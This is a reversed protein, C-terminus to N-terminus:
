FDERVKFKLRDFITLITGDSFTIFIEGEYTGAAVNLTDTNWLMYCVGSTYPAVKVCELEDLVDKSGLARFKVAVTAGTLDIPAWTTPDDPDLNKGAAATNSDRLTLTIEPKTDKAVLSIPDYYAM